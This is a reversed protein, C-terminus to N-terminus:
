TMAMGSENRGARITKNIRKRATEQNWEESGGGGTSMSRAWGWTRGRGKIEAERGGGVGGGGSVAHDQVLCLM